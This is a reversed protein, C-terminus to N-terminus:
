KHQCRCLAHRPNANRTTFSSMISTHVVGKEASHSQNIHMFQTDVDSKKVVMDMMITQTTLAALPEGQTAHVIRFVRRSSLQLCRPAACQNPPSKLLDAACRTNQLPANPGERRQKCLQVSEKGYVSAVM